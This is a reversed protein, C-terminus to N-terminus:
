VTGWLMEFPLARAKLWCRQGTAVRAADQESLVIEAELSRTDEILCIFDGEKLYQGVKEGLHPTTMRGALPSVLRLKAELTHMYRLEEELRALKARQADKVEPRTGAVMLTLEAESEALEKERRTLEAEFELVGRAQRAGHEAQSQE